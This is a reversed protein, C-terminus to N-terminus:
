KTVPRDDRYDTITALGAVDFAKQPGQRKGKVWNEEFKLKGDAQYEVRLGDYDGKLFGTVGILKGEADYFKWTGTRFNEEMQGVAVVHGANDFSVMPGHMLRMGDVTGKLCAYAGLDSRPGGIQRTGAPCAMKYGIGIAPAKETTAPAQALAIGAVAFQMMMMKRFM